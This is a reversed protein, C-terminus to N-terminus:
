HLMCVVLRLKKYCLSGREELFANIIDNRLRFDETMKWNDVAPIKLDVRQMVRNVHGM